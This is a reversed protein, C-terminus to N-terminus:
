KVSVVDEWIEVLTKELDNSPAVYEKRLVSDGTIDPLAKRDTKGNPTLPIADLDVYHSPIM